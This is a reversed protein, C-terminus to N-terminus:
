NLCVYCDRVDFALIESCTQLAFRTNPKMFNRFMLLSCVVVGCLICFPQINIEIVDVVRSAYFVKYLITPPDWHVSSRLSCVVQHFVSSLQAGLFQSVTGSYCFDDRWCTTDYRNTPVLWSLGFFPMLHSIVLSRFETKNPFREDDNMITHCTLEFIETKINDV